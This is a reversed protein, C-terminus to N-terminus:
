QLAHRAATRGAFRGLGFANALSGGGGVYATGLIGGTQEGAAYLGAIPRGTAAALVATNRDINLGAGTIGIVLPRIRVAYFPPVAIPRLLSAKKFFARDVGGACDANYTQITAELRHPHIGASDALARLTSARFIEGSDAKREIVDSKWSPTDPGKAPPLLSAETRGIEDLLAFCDGAPLDRVMKGALEYGLDEDTFRKGDRDVLVLWGPLLPEFDHTFGPSLIASLTDTGATAAGVRKAITLGDGRSMPSGLYWVANGYGATKPLLEAVLEPNAGFGGTALVVAGASVSEGDATVGCVGDNEVILGEVRTNLAVDILSTNSIQRDLVAVVAEGRGEPYHGRLVGDLGADYLLSASFNVGLSILWEVTPGSEECLRMIVGGDLGFQNVIMYYRYMAEASDNVGRARQVSTNSAFVVGGSLATTGGLKRGAEVILTRAGAEAASLGACMGAGGGGVVIVDYDRTVM